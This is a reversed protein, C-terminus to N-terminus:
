YGKRGIYFWFQFVVQVTFSIWARTSETWNPILKCYIGLKSNSTYQFVEGLLIEIKTRYQAPFSIWARTLEIWGPILKCYIVSGEGRWLFHIIVVYLLFCLIFWTCLQFNFHLFIHNLEPDSRFANQWMTKQSALSMNKNPNEFDRSSIDPLHLKRFISIISRGTGLGEKMVIRRTQPILRHCSGVKIM